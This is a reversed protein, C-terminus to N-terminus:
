KFTFYRLLLTFSHRVQNCATLVEMANSDNSGEGGNYIGGNNTSLGETLGNRGSGGVGVGVGGETNHNTTGNALRVMATATSVDIALGSGSAVGEGEDQHGGAADMVGSSEDGHLTNDSVGFSAGDNISSSSSGNTTTTHSTNNGTVSRTSEDPELGIGTDTVEPSESRHNKVNGNTSQKPPLSLEQPLPQPLPIITPNHGNQYPLVNNTSPPPGILIILDHM